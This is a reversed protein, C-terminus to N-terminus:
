YATLDTFIVDQEELYTIYDKWLPDGKRLVNKNGVVILGHKARTLAVNLRRKDRLFGIKNETNNRVCSFIIFSKEHGQFSDVTAVHLGNIINIVNNQLSGATGQSGAANFLEIEDYEQQMSIQKPNIVVNKTLIDSLLDRQASYPTIVGIEELPVKKDLMLIQIIKVIEVCEHKNEYTFGVIDRQTSRVRSEPGLDCQYFFLPHQVGPWAKQEDTVGDKLEGNYIKKIPFESIKPHMRYQTDLMLPNKYTGNSLVREFLSTELQPINSFSSLQKEDGVFVFNRIGPLSLPVLTSAESSQTAEDMIVVPCEKIVKLERGGAAINTTFIIQSQSVVKNTVRNKEKYFKTDESKSIMEGRPTKNAVVQMDPSLNKYVINHLCIEGLPHDDSYQQEKKKSLIRLIKIQPRNEMIKEAINDIAINSAAVCLIPFAHFREIVQIIIEEITSTKGTGPPGQLITISNNLVHEVATKQSRNLKDSSFKLRNDFYIEKIPKQGLLLDIFKPNTIRTMAFLIRSTQASTPLLKFQSSGNKTPLSLNNWSFLEVLLVYKGRQISLEKIFIYWVKQEDQTCFFFPQRENFAPRGLALLNAPLLKELESNNNKEVNIIFATDKENRPWLINFNQVFENELKQELFLAFSYDNLYTNLDPYSLTPKFTNYRTLPEGEEYILKGDKTKGNNKEQNKTELKKPMTTTKSKENLTPKSAKKNRNRSKTISTTNENPSISPERSSETDSGITWRSTGKNPQNNSKKGLANKRGASNLKAERPNKNGTKDNGKTKQGAHDKKGKKLGTTNTSGSGNGNLAKPQPLQHKDVSENKGKGGSNTTVHSNTNKRDEPIPQSNRVNNRINTKREKEKGIGNGSNKKHNAKNGKGKNRNSPGPNSRSTESKSVKAAVVPDSEVAKFGKFNRLNSSSSSQITSNEKKVEYAIRSIKAEFTEKKEKKIKAGKRGKKGRGVRRGGKKRPKRTSNQTENLGLYIYLFRGSKESVFDKARNSKPLCKDCLVEGNRNANLNSEEGCEDCCCERVKVYKKWFKLISGNQLSYSTSPRETESYEKRFCSNCLLIMDEGAFRIIQLQHINKDQCEECCIDEDNSTDFVTKHRTSSLHKMMQEADYAQSCTRCQFDM